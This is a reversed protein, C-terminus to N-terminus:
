VPQAFLINLSVQAFILADENKIKKAQIKTISTTLAVALYFFLSFASRWFDGSKTIKLAVQPSNPSHPIINGIM